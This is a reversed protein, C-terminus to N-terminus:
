SSEGMESVLFTAGGPDAVVAMRGYPTDEPPRVVSGGADEVASAARDADEVAFYCAWHPPLGAMEPLLRYAGCVARGDLTFVRYVADDHMPEDDTDFGFVETYFTTAADLDTTALENWAMAGPENVLGAGGHSGAQWVGFVAATPDAVLAIRGDEMVDMAELVVTGGAAVAAEVIPDAEGAFYTTWVSPVGQSAAEESQAACAAVHHGDKTFFVYDGGGPMPRRETAWGFLQEYFAVARDVDPTQLDAWCPVGPAYHDMTPM